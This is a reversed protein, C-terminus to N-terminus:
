STPNVAAPIDVKRDMEVRRHEHHCKALLRQGFPDPLEIHIDNAMRFMDENNKQIEYHNITIFEGPVINRLSKLQYRGDGTADMTVACNIEDVVNSHRIYAILSRFQTADLWDLEPANDIKFESTIPLTSVNGNADLQRTKGLGEQFINTTPAAIYMVKSKFIQKDEEIPGLTKLLESTPDIFLNTMSKLHTVCYPLRKCVVRKCGPHICKNCITEINPLRRFGWKGRSTTKGFIWGGVKSDKCWRQYPRDTPQLYLIPSVVLKTPKKKFENPLHPKRVHHENNEEM